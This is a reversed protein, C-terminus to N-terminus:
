DEMEVRKYEYDNRIYNNFYKAPLPAKLMATFEYEPVQEFQYVAGNKFEVELIEHAPDYGVASLEPSTITQRNM